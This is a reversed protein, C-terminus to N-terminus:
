QARREATTMGIVIGLAVLLLAALGIGIGTVVPSSITVALVATLAGVVAVLTGLAVILATKNPQASLRHRRFTLVAGRDPCRM